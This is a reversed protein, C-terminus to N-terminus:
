LKFIQLVTSSPRPSLQLLRRQIGPIRSSTREIDRLLVVRKKAALSFLTALLVFLAMFYTFYVADSVQEDAAVPSHDSDAVGHPTVTEALYHHNIGYAGHCALILAVLLMAFLERRPANRIM